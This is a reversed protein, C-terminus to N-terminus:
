TNSNISNLYNQIIEEPQGISHVMGNTLFLCRTAVNKILPMSHSVFVITRGEKHGIDYIKETCRRQFEEDGVALVEDIVLIDSELHAGVSFALKVYMGSSYRKVPTDIYEGIGSFDIIKDLKRNIEAKRMGLITGNLFVNERGTLDPHFGSAIGLLSASRGKMKVVGTTQTTTRSLIKLLTSKGAGNNGVIGFIEGQNVTFNVDWLAASLNQQKILKHYEPTAILEPKYRGSMRRWLDSVDEAITKIGVEGLRYVKSLGEVSIVISM